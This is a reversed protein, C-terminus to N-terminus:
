QGVAQVVARWAEREPESLIAWRAQQSAGFSGALAEARAEYARQALADLKARAKAEIAEPAPPRAAPKDTGPLEVQELFPALARAVAAGIIDPGEGLLFEADQRNDMFGAELLVAPCRTDTLMRFRANKVPERRVPVGASELEAVIAWAVDNSTQSASPAIYCEFGRAGKSPGELDTGQANCHVSLLLPSSTNAISNVIEVRESLPMDRSLFRPGKADLTGGVTSYRQGRGLENWLSRCIARNVVGEIIHPGDPVHRYRKGPTVPDGTLSDIGGHGPDLIICDIMM